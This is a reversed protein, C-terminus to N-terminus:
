RRFHYHIHEKPQAARMNKNAEALKFREHAQTVSTAHTVIGLVVVLVGLSLSITVLDGFYNNVRITQGTDTVYEETTLSEYLVNFAALTSSYKEISDVKLFKDVDKSFSAVRDLIDQESQSVNDADTGPPMYNEDTLASGINEIEGTVYRDYSVNYVDNYDWYLTARMEPELVTLTTGQPASITIGWIVRFWVDGSEFTFNKLTDSETSPRYAFKFLPKPIENYNLDYYQHLVYRREDEFYTGVVLTCSVHANVNDADCYFQLDTQINPAYYYPDCLNDVSYPFYMKDSSVVVYIDTDPQDNTASFESFHAAADTNYNSFIYRRGYEDDSTERQAQCLMRYTDIEQRIVKGYEQDFIVNHSMIYEHNHQGDLWPDFEFDFSEASAPVIMCCVLLAVVLVIPIIRKM